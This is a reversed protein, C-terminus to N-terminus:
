FLQSALQLSGGTEAERARPDCIHDVVGLKKKKKKFCSPNKCPLGKVSQAIERAEGLMRLHSISTLLALDLGESVWGAIYQSHNTSPLDM